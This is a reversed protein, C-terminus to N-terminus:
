HGRNIKSRIPRYFDKWYINLDHVLRKRLPISPLLGASQLLQGYVSRYPVHEKSFGNTRWVENCWHVFYWNEPIKMSFKVLPAVKHWEDTNSVNSVIYKDLGLLSVNRILIDIPKHWDTNNEDVTLSAEEYCRKMLESGKPAKLINGVLALSHHSRFFYPETFAFPKICTVDMDVWCGGQEYLLKYRFIDSFGSVSGKGVGFQSPHKYSFIREQPIIENADRMICGPPVKELEDYTWLNFVYGHKVFSHVTLFEMMSLKNGIWLGHIEHEAWMEKGNDNNM